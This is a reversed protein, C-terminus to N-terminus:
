RIPPISQALITTLNFGRPTQRRQKAFAESAFLPTLDLIRGPLHAVM